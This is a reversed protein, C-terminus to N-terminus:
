TQHMSRVAASLADADLVDAMLGIQEEWVDDPVDAKVDDDLVHYVDLGLQAGALAGAYAPDGLIVTEASIEAAEPDPAGLLVLLEKPDNAQALRFIAEQSQLDM